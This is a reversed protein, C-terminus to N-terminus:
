CIAALRLHSLDSRLGDGQLSQKTVIKAYSGQHRHAHHEVGFFVESDVNFVGLM